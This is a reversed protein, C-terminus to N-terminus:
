ATTDINTGNTSSAATETISQSVLSKNQARLAMIKTVNTAEQNETRMYLQNFLAPGNNFFSKLHQRSSASLGIRPGGKNINSFVRRGVDLM